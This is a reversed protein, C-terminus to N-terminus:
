TTIALLRSSHKTVQVRWTMTLRLNGERGQGEQLAWRGVRAGPISTHRPSTGHKDAYLKRNEKVLETYRTGFRAPDIVTVVVTPPKGAPVHNAM